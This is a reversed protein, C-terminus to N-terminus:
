IKNKEFIEVLQETASKKLGVPKSLEEHPFSTLNLKPDKFTFPTWPGQISPTDTHWLKRLRFNTPNSAQTRLLNIWKIIDENSYEHCYINQKDGNVLISFM